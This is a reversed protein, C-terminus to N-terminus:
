DGKGCHSRRLANIFSSKGVNPMGVVMVKTEKTEPRGWRALCRQITTIMEKVGSHHQARCNVPIVEAEGMAMLAKVTPELKNPDALDIKNLALIKPKNHVLLNFQPNRGSFPIQITYHQPIDHTASVNSDTHIQTHTHTHTQTHTLTHTHTHTHTHTRAHTHPWNAAPYEPMRFKLSVTM